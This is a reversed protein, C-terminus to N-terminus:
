WVILFGGFNVSAADVSDVMFQYLFCHGKKVGGIVISVIVRSCHKKVKKASTGM